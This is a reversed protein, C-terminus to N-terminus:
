GRHNVTLFDQDTAVQDAASLPAYNGVRSSSNSLDMELPAVLESAPLRNTMQEPSHSVTSLSYASSVIFSLSMMTAIFQM